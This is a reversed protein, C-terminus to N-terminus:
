SQLFSMITGAMELTDGHKLRQPETGVPKGNVLPKKEGGFHALYYGDSRRTIVAVQVGPKGVTTTTKVLEMSFGPRAGAIVYLRGPASAPAAAAPAPTPVSTPIPTADPTPVPVPASASIPASVPTSVPSVPAATRQAERPPAPAAVPTPTPAAGAPKTAAPDDPLDLPPREPEPPNLEAYARSVPNVDLEPLVPAPTPVAETEPVTTVAIDNRTVVAPRPTPAPAAVAPAVPAASRPAIPTLAPAAPGAAPSSLPRHAALHEALQARSIMVTREAAAADEHIEVEHVEIRLTNRGIVIADGLRLAHRGIQRGNVLTGNTSGLDEIVFLDAADRTIVAHHGSVAKDDLNLDNDSHRGISLREHEFWYEQSGGSATQVILRYNMGPM